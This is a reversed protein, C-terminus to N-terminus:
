IPEPQDLFNGQLVAIGLERLADFLGQSDVGVAVITIGMTDPMTKFAQYGASHEDRMMDHLAQANIKVYNFEANQLLQLSLGLDLNDLGFEHGHRRVREAIKACMVPHQVLVHHSAEICLRTDSQEASFLLQDFEEQAEALEFFDASLNIALPVSRDVTQNNVILRFVAKDIDIAMGLSAAMPMFASAPVIQDNEDRARVFLERQVPRADEGLALQGVLFLQDSDLLTELWARWMMKGQPLQLSTSRQHEISWPGHTDALSLSYDISSLIGGIGKDTELSAIGALLYIDAYDPERQILQQFESFLATILEEVGSEDQQSM